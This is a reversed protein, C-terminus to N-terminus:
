PRGQTRAESARCFAAPVLFVMELNNRQYEHFESTTVVQFLKIQQCCLVDLVYRTSSVNKSYAVIKWKANCTTANPIEM